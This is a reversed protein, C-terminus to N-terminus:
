EPLTVYGVVYFDKTQLVIRYTGPLLLGDCGPAGAARYSHREEFAFLYGNFEDGFQEYSTSLRMEEWEGDENYYYIDPVHRTFKLDHRTKNKIHYSINKETITIQSFYVRSNLTYGDQEYLNHDTIELFVCAGAGVFLFFVGILLMAVFRRNNM